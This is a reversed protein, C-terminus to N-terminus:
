KHFIIYKQNNFYRKSEIRNALINLLIMIFAYIVSLIPSFFLLVFFIAVEIFM